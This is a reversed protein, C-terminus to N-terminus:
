ILDQQLKTKKNEQFTYFGSWLLGGWTKHKVLPNLHVIYDFRVNDNTIHRRIGLKLLRTVKNM